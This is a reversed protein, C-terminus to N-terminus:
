QFDVRIKFTQKRRFSDVKLNIEGFGGKGPKKIEYTRLVEGLRTPYSSYSFASRLTGDKPDVDGEWTGWDAFGEGVPILLGDLEQPNMGEDKALIKTGTQIGATTSGTFAVSSPINQRLQVTGFGPNPGLNETRQRGWLPTEPNGLRRAFPTPNENFRRSSFEKQLSSVVQIVSDGTEPPLNASVDRAINLAIFNQFVKDSKADRSLLYNYNYADAVKAFVLNSGTAISSYTAYKFFTRRYM